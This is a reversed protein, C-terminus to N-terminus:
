VLLRAQALHWQAVAYPVSGKPATPNLLTGGGLLERAMRRHQGRRKRRDPSYGMRLADRTRLRRPRPETM